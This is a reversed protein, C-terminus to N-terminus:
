QRHKHNLLLAVYAGQATHTGAVAKYVEVEQEGSKISAVSPELFEVTFERDENVPMGMMKVKVDHTLELDSVLAFSVAPATQLTEM